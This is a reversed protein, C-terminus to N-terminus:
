PTHAKVWAISRETSLKRDEPKAGILGHGAGAVTIFEHEVGAERLRADRTTSEEDPVDTDATGHILLTPPYDRTVNRIPCYPDFWKPEKRPDHGSAEIPWTGQQRCM